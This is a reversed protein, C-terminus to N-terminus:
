TSIVTPVNAATNWVYDGDKAYMKVFKWVKADYSDVSPYPPRDGTKVSEVFSSPYKYLEINMGNERYKDIDVRMGVQVVLFKTNPWIKFLSSLITGSGVTLWLRTPQINSTNAISICRSLENIYDHDDIGLSILLPKKGANELKNVIARAAEYSISSSVIKNNSSKTQIKFKETRNSLDSVKIEDNKRIATYCFSGYNKARNVLEKAQNIIVTNYIIHCEMGSRRACWSAALQGYGNAAAVIVVSDHIFSINSFFFYGRQKTGCELYDERIITVGVDGTNVTHLVLEPNHKYMLM